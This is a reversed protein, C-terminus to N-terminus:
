GEGKPSPQAFRRTLPLRALIALIITDAASDSERLVQSNEIRVVDIGLRAFYRSRHDDDEVALEDDHSDGDVEVVM